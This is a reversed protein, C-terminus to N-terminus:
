VVNLVGEESSWLGQLWYQVYDETNLEKKIPHMFATNPYTSESSLHVQLTIQSDTHVSVAALYGGKQSSGTFILPKPSTTSFTKFINRELYNQM